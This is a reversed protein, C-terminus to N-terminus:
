PQASHQQEVTIITANFVNSLGVIAPAINLAFVTGVRNAGKYTTGYLTSGNLTLSGYPTSRKTSKRM